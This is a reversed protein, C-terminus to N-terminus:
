AGFIHQGHSVSFTQFYLLRPVEFYLHYLCLYYLYIYVKYFLSLYSLLYFYICNTSIFPIYMGINPTYTCIYLYICLSILIM